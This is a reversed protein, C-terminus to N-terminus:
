VAKVMFGRCRSQNRKRPLMKVFVCIQFSSERKISGAQVEVNGNKDAPSIVKATKGIDRIIVTDGAVLPRPLV